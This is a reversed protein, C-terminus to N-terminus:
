KDLLNNSVEKVLVSSHHMSDKHYYWIAFEFSNNEHQQVGAGIFALPFQRRDDIDSRLMEVSNEVTSM